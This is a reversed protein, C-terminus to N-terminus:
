LLLMDGEDFLLSESAILNMKHHNEGLLIVDIFLLLSMRFVVKCIYTHQM